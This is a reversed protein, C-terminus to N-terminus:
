FMFLNFVVESPVISDLLDIENSGPQFISVIPNNPFALIFGMLVLLVGTILFVWTQYKTEAIIKGMILIFLVLIFLFLPELVLIFPFPRGNTNIVSVLLMVNLVSYIIIFVMISKRSPLKKKMAYFVLLFCLFSPYISLQYSHKLLMMSVLVNVLTFSISFIIVIATGIRGMKTESFMWDLHLIKKGKEM